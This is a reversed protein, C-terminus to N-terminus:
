LIKREENKAKVIDEWDINFNELLNHAEEQRKNEQHSFFIGAITFMVAFGLIFGYVFHAM